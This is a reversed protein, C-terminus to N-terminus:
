AKAPRNQRFKRLLSSGFPLLLLAGAIYTSPEPVASVSVSNIDFDRDNGGFSDIVLSIRLVRWGGALALAATRDTYGSGGSSTLDYRGVDNLALLNGTNKGDGLTPDVFSGAPGWHVDFFKDSVNDNDSDLVFVARPAGAAIGGKNVDYGYSLNAIDAFKAPTDLVFRLVAFTSDTSTMNWPGTQDTPTTTGGHTYSGTIAASSSYVGTGIFLVLLLTTLTNKMIRGEKTQNGDSKKTQNTVEGMSYLL